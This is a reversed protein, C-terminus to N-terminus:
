QRGISEICASCFVGEAFMASDFREVRGAGVGVTDINIDIAQIGSGVAHIDFIKITLVPLFIGVVKCM